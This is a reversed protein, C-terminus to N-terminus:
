AQWQRESPRQPEESSDEKSRPEPPGDETKLRERKLRENEARLQRITELMDGKKLTELEQRLQKVLEWPDAQKMQKLKQLEGKLQSAFDKLEEMRKQQQEIILQQSQAASALLAIIDQYVVGKADKLGDQTGDVSRVVQPVVSELEDAIFGFRMYKSDSGKRFTYSVPRLQRLMWLAGDAPFDSAPEKSSAGRLAKTETTQMQGPMISKLTRQLPIIDKKLRRDSTSITNQSTWSGHLTGGSSTFTISNYGGVYVNM